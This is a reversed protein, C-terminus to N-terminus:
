RGHRMERMLDAADDLGRRRAIQAATEGHENTVRPDAGHALLFETVKVAEEEDDPLLFLLPSGHRNRAHVLQPQARMVDSARDLQQAAVLSVVDRSLPALLDIMASRKFFVAFGLPTADYQTGRRDIDAGAALLRRAIEVHGSQAAVHLARKGDAAALDVPMGLGILVAVVDDLGRGAALLLPLAGALVAPDAEAIAQATGFDRRLLAAQFAPQGSLVVPTAGRLVLLDSIEWHGLLQAGMHVPSGSYAHDTNPNAGHQLLWEARRVHNFSVANGLLYDLASRSPGTILGRAEGQWRAETGQAQCRGYLFELWTTDDGVISTNYLAQTDFPDAGYEILLAALEGARPHPPRVGEGQGIVGTLTKFPCGWGDDFEANPNAGNDLLLRAIAVAREGAGPLRGYALYLLPEWDLPGGKATAASADQALRREVEALDGCMVATHISDRAIEPTRQLIRLVVSLEGGWASRLVEGVREAHSRKVLAQDALAEKLAPWGAFGYDLALAHQIHRLGPEPPAKRWITTLRRRAEADGAGWAKLWRKAEKKLSELNSNNALTRSMFVKRGHHAQHGSFLSSSPQISLDVL